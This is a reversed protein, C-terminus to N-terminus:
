VTLLNFNMHTVVLLVLCKFRATFDSSFYFTVNKCILHTKNKRNFECWFLNLILSFNQIVIELFALFPSKKKKKEWFLLVTDNAKAKSFFANCQCDKWFYYPIIEEAVNKTHVINCCLSSDHWMSEMLKIEKESYSIICAPCLCIVSLIRGTELCKPLKRM